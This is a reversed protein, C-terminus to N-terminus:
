FLSSQSPSPGLEVSFSCAADDNAVHNVRPSVPYSRMLDARYPKLVDAVVEVKTMAPDLCLDYDTSDLIVPMRDHVTSTV